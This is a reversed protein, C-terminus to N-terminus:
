TNDFKIAKLISDNLYKYFMLCGNFFNAVISKTRIIRDNHTLKSQQVYSISHLNPYITKLRFVREYVNQEM